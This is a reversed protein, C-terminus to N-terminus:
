APLPVDMSFQAGTKRLRAAIQVVVTNQQRYLTLSVKASEIEPEKMVQEHIKKQLTAANRIPLPEKVKFGLGYQPLHAFEGPTTMLRRLILKRVLSVGSEREYDGTAAIQLTGGVMDLMPVPASRLDVLAQRRRAIRRDVTALDRELAGPCEASTAALVAGAADRLTSTELRHTTNFSGLPANLYLDFVSAEVQAVTLVYLRKSTDLRTVIWVNPDMASGVKEPDTEALVALEVRLVNAAVPYLTAIVDSSNSFGTGWLSAGYAGSGWGSM